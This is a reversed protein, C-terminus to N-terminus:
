DKIYYMDKELWDLPKYRIKKREMLPYVYYHTFGMMELENAIERYYVGTTILVVTNDPNMERLKELGYAMYSMFYNGQKHLSKDIVLRVNLRDFYQNLLDHYGGGVGYVVLEKNKVDEWFDKWTKDLKGYLEEKKLKVMNRISAYVTFLYVSKIIIGLFHLKRDTIQIMKLLYILRARTPYKLLDLTMRFFNGAKTLERNVEVNLHDRAYKELILDYKLIEYHFTFGWRRLRSSWSTGEAYRNRRYCSFIDTMKYLPGHSLLLMNFTVDGLFPHAKYIITNDENIYFNRHLLTSGQSPLNGKNFDELTFVNKDHLWYKRDWLPLESGNIPDGNEDIYSFGGACAYYEPHAELFDVQKQLKDMDCWYDDGECGAIYKGHTLVCLEYSNRNPGLNKDRCFARIIEPFKEAYERVIDPTSDTSADDGVLVEIPFDVRQNVISDLTQRIYKEQNYTIVIVSVMIEKDDSM